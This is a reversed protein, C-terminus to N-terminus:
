EKAAKAEAAKAEAKEKAAKREAADVNQMAEAFQSLPLHKKCKDCVIESPIAEPDYQMLNKSVRMGCLFFVVGYEAHAVFHRISNSSNMRFSDREEVAVGNIDEDRASESAIDSARESNSAGNARPKDSM